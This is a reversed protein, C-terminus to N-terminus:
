SPGDGADGAPGPGMTRDPAEGIRGKSAMVTRGWTSDAPPWPVLEYRDWRRTITHRAIRWGEPTRLLDDEYFGGKMILNAMEPSDTRHLGVHIYEARTRAHRASLEVIVINSLLHQHSYVPDDKTLFAQIADVGHESGAGDWNVFVADPTFASQWEDFNRGPVDLGTAYRTLTAPIEIRDILEQLNM